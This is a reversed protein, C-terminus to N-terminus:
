QVRGECSEVEIKLLEVQVQFLVGVQDVLRDGVFKQLGHRHVLVGLSDGPLSDHVANQVEVVSPDLLEPLHIGSLAVKAFSHGVKAILVM